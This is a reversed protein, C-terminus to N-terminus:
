NFEDHVRGQQATSSYQNRRSLVICTNGPIVDFFRPGGDARKVATAPGAPHSLQLNFVMGMWWRM